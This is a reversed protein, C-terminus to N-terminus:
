KRIEKLILRVAESLDKSVFDPSVKYGGDKGAHGTKVLVSKMKANKAALIDRTSDGIMWSKDLVINLDNEAETFM